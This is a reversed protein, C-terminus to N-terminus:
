CVAHLFNLSRAPDSWKQKSRAQWVHMELLKKTIESYDKTIEITIM